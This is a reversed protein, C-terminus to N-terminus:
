KLLRCLLDLHHEIGSPGSCLSRWEPPLQRASFAAKRLHENIRVILDQTKRQEPTRYDRLNDDAM